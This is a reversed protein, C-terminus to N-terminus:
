NQDTNNNHEYEQRAKRMEEFPNINNVNCKNYFVEMECSLNSNEIDSLNEGTIDGDYKKLIRVALESCSMSYM